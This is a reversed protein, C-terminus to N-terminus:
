KVEALYEEWLKPLGASATDGPHIVVRYRFRLKGGPELEVGGKQSKDKSFAALGFPNAAFLGYARVHWRAPRANGPHDFIAVGLKEGEVTGAYDVWPSPKGWVAKEHSEGEANTIQGTAPVKSENAKGSGGSEQIEAALRLGLTGDKADAITVKAPATLTIDLDIIRLAPDRRFVMERSEELLNTGSPDLWHMTAKLSGAADGGKTEDIRVVEIRGRNPTKYTAENNWFDIGNVGEHGFWLGRHHPHDTPEGEVKEMPFHRTVIKGSASRLPNLYPKMADGGREVFDTFPKGDIEVHVVDGEPTVKVQGAAQPPRWASVALAAVLTLSRLLTPLARGPMRADEPAGSGLRLGPSTM